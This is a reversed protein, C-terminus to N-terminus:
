MSSALSVLQNTSLSGDSDVHYWVGHNVWTAKSQNYIYVTRGGAQVTQYTATKTAVFDNLLTESDWNSVKETLAFSRSSDSNSNFKISVTGPSYAFKGVSFGSPRYSPLTAAFGAKSSAMRLQVNAVNQYALFGGILIVALAAASVNALGRSKAKHKRATAHVHKKAPTPQLEHSNAKQLAKQFMDMSKSVPQLTTAPVSPAAHAVDAVTQSIVAMPQSVAYSVMEFSGFRTVLKSKNVRKARAERRKDVAAISLKPAVSVSPVKALIDTRTASKIPTTTKSAPKRVAHRMLTHSPHAKKAKAAPAVTHARKAQPAEKAHHTPTLVTPENARTRVVGDISRSAGAAHGVPKGTIADYSKGNIKIINHTKTM